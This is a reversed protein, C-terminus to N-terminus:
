IDRNRRNEPLNRIREKQVSLEWDLDLLYDLDSIHRIEVTLQEKTLRDPFKNDETEGLELFKILKWYPLRIIEAFKVLTDHSPLSIYNAKELNSISPNLDGFLRGYDRYTMGLEARSNKVLTALRLLAQRTDM